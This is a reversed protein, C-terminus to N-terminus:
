VGLGRAKLENKLFPRTNKGLGAQSWSRGVEAKQRGPIISIFGYQDQKPPLARSVKVLAPRSSHDEQRVGEL